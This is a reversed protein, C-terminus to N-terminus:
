VRYKAALRVGFLACAIGLASLSVTFWQVEGVNDYLAAPLYPFVGFTYDIVDNTLTWVAGVAVALATFRYFRMYLLAEIAMASHSFVLMWEQCVITDGQSAGWVII